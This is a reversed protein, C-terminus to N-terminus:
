NVFLPKGCSMVMQNLFSVDVFPSYDMLDAKTITDIYWRSFDESQSTIDKVFDKEKAM